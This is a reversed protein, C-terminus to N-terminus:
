LVKDEIDKRARGLCQLIRGPPAEGQTIVVLYYAEGVLSTFVSFKTGICYYWDTGPHRRNLQNLHIVEYAGQVKIDYPQMRASLVEITEGEADLFIVAEAKPVDALLNSLIYSLPM